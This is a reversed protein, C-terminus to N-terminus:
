EPSREWESESGKLWDIFGDFVDTAQGRQSAYMGDWYDENDCLTEAYESWLDRLQKSTYKM